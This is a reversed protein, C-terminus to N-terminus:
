GKSRFYYTRRAPVQVFLRGPLVCATLKGGYVCGTDLGIASRHVLPEPRPTHGYFVLQPGHWSEAWPRGDQTDRRRAPRDLADLVQIETVVEPGQRHWAVTPAFGAHVLLVNWEPFHLTLPLTALHDWDAPRLAHYTVRDAERLSRAAGSARAALLRLEHNGVVSRIGLARVRELVAPSDPGRNILDGVCVVVDEGRPQLAALLTDFEAACGHVDGIVIFRGRQGHAASPYTEPLGSEADADGGYQFTM